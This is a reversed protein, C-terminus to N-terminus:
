GRRRAYRDLKRALYRVQGWTLIHDQRLTALIRGMETAEFRAHLFAYADPTITFDGRLTMPRAYLLRRGIAIRALLLVVLSGAAYVRPPYVPMAEIGVEWACCALVVGLTLFALAWSWLRHLDEPLLTKSSRRRCYAIM